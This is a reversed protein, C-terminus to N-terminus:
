VRTAIFRDGARAFTWHPGTDPGTLALLYGADHGRADAAHTERDTQYEPDTPDTIKTWDPRM